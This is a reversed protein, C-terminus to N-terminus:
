RPRHWIRPRSRDEGIWEVVRRFTALDPTRGQEIRSLTAVPVKSAQAAERLSLGLAERRERLLPGLGQEVV